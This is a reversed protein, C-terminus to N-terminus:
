HILYFITMFLLGLPLFFLAKYLMNYVLYFLLKMCNSVMFSYFQLISRSKAHKKNLQPNLTLPLNLIDSFDKDGVACVFLLFGDVASLCVFLSIVM